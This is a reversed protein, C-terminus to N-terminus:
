GITFPLRGSVTGWEVRLTGGQRTDDISITLQEVPKPLTTVTMPARGVDQGEPYPIGWGSTRKSVVLQWESPGPVSFLGYTGAPISLTGLKLPRDTKLTTQEDAGMRWVEGPPMLTAEPRNKLFPRGYEISINAGDVVWTTRVHPSGGKGPHVQVTTQAALTGIVSATFISVLSLWKDM